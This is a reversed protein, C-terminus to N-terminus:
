AAASQQFARGAQANDFIEEFSAIKGDRVTFVHVLRTDWHKGTARVTAAWRGLVFVTDGTSAFEYQEFASPEESAGLGQFFEMAGAKGHKQGYFPAGDVDPTRWNVDDTLLDLVGAIDGRNFCAYASKVVDINEQSM